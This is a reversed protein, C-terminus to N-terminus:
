PLLGARVFRPALASGVGVLHEVITDADADVLGSRWALMLEVFGGIGVLVNIRFAQEDLDARLFPRAIAIFLDTSELVADRRRQELVASGAHDGFIIQTRTPDDAIHHAVAHIVARLMALPQDPPAQGLAVALM